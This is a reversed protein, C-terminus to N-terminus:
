ELANYVLEKVSDITKKAELENEVDKRFDFVQKGDAFEQTSEVFTEIQKNKLHDKSIMDPVIKYQHKKLWINSSAMTAKELPEGISVEWFAPKYDEQKTNLRMTSGGNVVIRNDYTAVFQEHNHGCLFLDYHPFKETLEKATYGSMYPPVSHQFINEHIVAINLGEADCDIIEEGYGFFHIRTEGKDVYLIDRKHVDILDLKAFVGLLSQDLNELSHYPADHNGINCHYSYTYTVFLEILKILLENANEQKWYQFFDGGDVILEIGQLRAYTFMQRRKDLQHEIYEADTKEARAIPRKSSFHGDTTFIFKM